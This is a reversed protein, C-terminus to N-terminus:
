SSERVYMGEGFQIEEILERTKKVIIPSAEKDPMQLYPEMSLPSGFIIRVTNYVVRHPINCVEEPLGFLSRVASPFPITEIQEDEPIIAFPIIPCRARLAFLAFGQHFNVMRSSFDNQVMYDHGEPFIGLIEGSKLVHMLRKISGVSVNGSVDMPIVGTDRILNKFIPIRTTYEAAIWSIFRPVAYAVVFPDLDSRHNGVLIAAGEKPVNELGQPQINVMLDMFPKVINKLTHFTQKESQLAM